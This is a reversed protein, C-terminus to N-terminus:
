VSTKEDCLAMSLRVSGKESCLSKRSVRLKERSVSGKEGHLAKRIVFLRGHWV